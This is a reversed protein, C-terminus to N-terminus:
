NNINILMKLEEKTPRTHKTKEIYDTWIYSTGFIRKRMWWLELNSNKVMDLIVNELKQKTDVNDVHLEEIYKQLKFIM